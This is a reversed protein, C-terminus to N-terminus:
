RQKKKTRKPKKAEKPLEEPVSVTATVPIEESVLVEVMEAPTAPPSTVEAAPAEAGLVVYIRQEPPLNELSRGCKTCVELYLPNKTQCKPCKLWLGMAM